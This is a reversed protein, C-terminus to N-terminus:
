SPLVQRFTRVAMRKTCSPIPLSTLDVDDGTSVVDQCLGTNVTEPAIPNAVSAAFRPGLEGERWGLASATRARTWYLGGVVPIDYGEVAECMLAGSAKGCLATIHEPRMMKKVRRLHGDCEMRILMARFDENAGGDAM